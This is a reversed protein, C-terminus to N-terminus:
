NNAILQNLRARSKQAQQCDKTRELTLKILAMAQPSQKLQDLNKLNLGEMPNFLDITKWERQDNLFFYVSNFSWDFCIQHDGQSANSAAPGSSFKVTNSM